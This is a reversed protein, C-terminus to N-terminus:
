MEVKLSVRRGGLNLDGLNIREKLRERRVSQLIERGGEQWM